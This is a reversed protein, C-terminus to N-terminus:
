EFDNPPDEPYNQALYEWKEDNTEPLSDILEQKKVEIQEPTQTRGNMTEGTIWFGLRGEIRKELPVQDWNAVEQRILEERYRLWHEQRDKGKQERAKKNQQDLYEKPPQYNEEISKRLFGAPNKEVLPSKNKVLWDLVNMQRKLQEDSYNGALKVATTRIIGKQILSEVIDSRDQSLEIKNDTVQKGSSMPLKFELQRETGASKLEEKAKRGPYYIIMWNPQKHWEAKLIFGKKILEKHASELNQIAKSLYKQESIPLVQCLKHYDISYPEGGTGYFQLSLFEYLRGAVNSKLSLFFGYDLPKVYSSNLSKIYWDGLFLYNTEATNGNPLTEGIFVIRNYLHFADEIWRKDNKSYFTGKSQIGAFATRILANKVMEYNRGSDTGINMLKCIECISFDIPNKIPFNRRSIISEIAKHVKKDFPTPYGFEANATVTWLIEIKKEDREAFERYETKIRRSSDKRSLAFFPLRVFNVESKIFTPTPLKEEEDDTIEPLLKEPIM